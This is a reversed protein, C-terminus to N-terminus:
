QMREIRRPKAAGFFAAAVAITARTRHREQVGIGAAYRARDRHITTQQGCALKDARMQQGHFAQFRQVSACQVRTLGRHHAM